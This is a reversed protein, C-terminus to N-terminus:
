PFTLSGLEYYQVNKIVSLHRNYGTLRRYLDCPPIIVTVQVEFISTRIKIATPLLTLIM